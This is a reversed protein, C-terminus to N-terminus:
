MQSPDLPVLDRSGLFPLLLLFPVLSLVTYLIVRLKKAESGDGDEEMNGEKPEPTKFAIGKALDVEAGGNGAGDSGAATVDGAASSSSTESPAATSDEADSSEGFARLLSQRRTSCTFIQKSVKPAIGGVLNTADMTSHPRALVVATRSFQYKVHNTARLSPRSCSAVLFSHALSLRVAALLAFFLSAPRM